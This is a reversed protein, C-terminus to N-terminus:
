QNILESMLAMSLVQLCFTMYLYCMTIVFIYCCFLYIIIFTNGIAGPFGKTEYFIATERKEAATLYKIINPALSM